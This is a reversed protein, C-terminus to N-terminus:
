LDLRAPNALAYAIIGACAPELMEAVDEFDEIVGYYPDPVDRGTALPDFSTALRVKEKLGGGMATLHLFHSQDLAVILDFDQFDRKRVQRARMTMTCGRREGVQIARRDPLDGVHWDGTGASDIEIAVGAEAAQRRLIGEALPSRCINGTCVFLVRM